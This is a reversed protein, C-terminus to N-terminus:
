NPPGPVAAHSAKVALILSSEGAHWRYGVGFPLGAPKQVAKLQDLEPQPFQKFTAIPGRYDGFLRIDWDDAPFYRMPIGSDDQLIAACDNLLFQRTTDFGDTHM